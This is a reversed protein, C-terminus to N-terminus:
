WCKRFRTMFITTMAASTLTCSQMKEEETIAIKWLSLAISMMKM